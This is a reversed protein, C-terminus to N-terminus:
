LATPYFNKHGTPTILITDEYRVGGINPVYLGPEITFIMGSELAVDKDESDFKIRPFEHVELGIGHGLSHVFLDEVNEECMVQRAAMDLQKLKVGPRCLKLVSQQARKAIEYLRRLYPSEKKYFLVRTMDSHYNDVSIGIDILVIDGEKFRTEQSRYHPMASNPGFAIIPEFSLRDAGRELCFIEFRKSLENEKIGQKLSARIFQFGKWLLAASKQLKQIEDKDKIARIRKFFSTSPVLTIKMGEKKQWHQLRLFHDYSTHRGDFGLSQIRHSKCFSLFREPSDLATKYPSKEEAIQLYRGDILLFADTSHVILRGASLKLGTFYFLELPQEILCGDLKEKKLANQLHKL